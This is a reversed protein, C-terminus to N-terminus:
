RCGGRGIVGSTNYSLNISSNPIGTNNVLHEELEDEQIEKRISKNIQDTLRQIEEIRTGTHARIHLLIQGADVSPFDKGLTQTM